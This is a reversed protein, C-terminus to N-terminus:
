KIFNTLKNNTKVCIKTYDVVVDIQEMLLSDNHVM